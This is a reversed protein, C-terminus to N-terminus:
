AAKIDPIHADKKKLLKISNEVIRRKRFRNMYKVATRTLPLIGNETILSGTEYLLSALTDIEKDKLRETKDFPKLQNGLYRMGYGPINSAKDSVFSVTKSAGYLVGGLVYLFAKEEPLLEQHKEREKSAQAILHSGFRQVTNELMFPIAKKLTTKIVERGIKSVISTIGCTAWAGLRVGKKFVWRGPKTALLGPVLLASVAIPGGGIMLAGIGLPPLVVGAGKRSKELVDINKWLDKGSVPKYFIEESAKMTNSLIDAIRNSNNGRWYNYFSNVLNRDKKTHGLIHKMVTRANNKDTFLSPNAYYKAILDKKLSIYKEKNGLDNKETEIKELENRIITIERKKGERIKQIKELIYSGSGKLESCETLNREYEKRADIIKQMHEEKTKNDMDGTVQKILHELNDLSEKVKKPLEISHLIEKNETLTNIHTDLSDIMDKIKINEKIKKIITNINNEFYENKLANETDNKERCQNSKNNYCKKKEELYKILDDNLLYQNLKEALYQQYRNNLQKINRNLTDKLQKKSNIATSLKDQKEYGPYRESLEDIYNEAEIQKKKQEDTLSQGIENGLAEFLIDSPSCETNDTQSIKIFEERDSVTHIQDIIEFNDYIYEFSEWQEETLGNSSEFGKLPSLIDYIKDIEGKKIIRGIVRTSCIELIGKLNPNNVLESVKKIRNLQVYEYWKKKNNSNNINKYFSIMEGIKKTKAGTNLYCFSSDNVVNEGFLQDCINTYLSKSYEEANKINEFYKKRNIYNELDRTKLIDIDFEKKGKIKGKLPDPIEIKCIQIIEDINIPAEQEKLELLPTKLEKYDKEYIIKKDIETNRSLAKLSEEEYIKASLLIKNFGLFENKFNGNNNIWESIETYCKIFKKIPDPGPKDQYVAVLNEKFQKISQEEISKKIEQIPVWTNEFFEKIKGSDEIKKDTIKEILEKANTKIDELNYGDPLGDKFEIKLLEDDTYTKLTPFKNDYNRILKSIEEWKKNTNEKLATKKEELIIKEKKELSDELLKFDKIETIPHYNENIYEIYGTQLDDKFSQLTQIAEFHAEYNKNTDNIIGLSKNIKDKNTCKDIVEKKGWIELGKKIHEDFSTEIEKISKEFEDFDKIKLPNILNNIHDPIEDVYTKLKASFKDIIKTKLTQILEKSKKAKELIEDTIQKNNIYTDILSKLDTYSAEETLDTYSSAVYEIWKQAEEYNVFTEKFKKTNRNNLVQNIKTKSQNIVSGHIEKILQEKIQEAKKKYENAKQKISKKTTLLGKHLKQAFDNILTDLPETENTISLRVIYQLAQTILKEKEKKDAKKIDKVLKQIHSQDKNKKIDKDQELIDFQDIENTIHENGQEIKKKNILQLINHIKKYKDENAENNIDELDKGTITYIGLQKDTLDSRLTGVVETYKSNYLAQLDQIRKPNLEIKEEKKTTEFDILASVHAHALLLALALIEKPPKQDIDKIFKKQAETLFRKDEMSLLFAEANPYGNDKDEMLHDFYTEKEKDVLQKKRTNIVQENYNLAMYIYSIKVPKFKYIIM